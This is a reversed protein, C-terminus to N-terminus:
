QGGGDGRRHGDSRAASADLDRRAALGGSRPKLSRHSGLRRPNRHTSERACCVCVCLALRSHALLCRCERVCRSLSLPTPPCRSLARHRPVALWGRSRGVAATLQDRISRNISTIPQSNSDCSRGDTCCISRFRTVLPHLSWYHVSDTAASSRVLAASPPPASASQQQGITWQRAM